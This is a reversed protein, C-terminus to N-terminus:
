YRTMEFQTGGVHSQHRLVPCLWRRYDDQWAGDDTTHFVRTNRELGLKKLYAMVGCICTDVEVVSDSYKSKSATSLGYRCEQM